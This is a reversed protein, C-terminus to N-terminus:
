DIQRYKEVERVKMEKYKTWHATIIAFTILVDESVSEQMENAAYRDFQGERLCMSLPGRGHGFSATRMMVSADNKDTWKQEAVELLEEVSRGFARFVRLFPEYAENYMFDYMNAVYFNLEPIHMHRPRSNDVPSKIGYFTGNKIHENYITPPVLMKSSLQNQLKDMGAAFYDNALDPGSTHLLRWIGNQIDVDVVFHNRKMDSGGSFREFYVFPRTSHKAIDHRSALSFSQKQPLGTISDFEFSGNGKNLYTRTDLGNCSNKMQNYWAVNSGFILRDYILM